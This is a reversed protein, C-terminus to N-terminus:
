ANEKLIVFLDRKRWDNSLRLCSVCTIKWTFSVVPVLHKISLLVKNERPIRLHGLIECEEALANSMREDIYLNTLPGM